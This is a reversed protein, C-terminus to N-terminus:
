SEPTALPARYRFILGQMGTVNELFVEGGLRCAVDRAISLGLGSGSVGSGLRRYFPNFVRELEEEPIGPGEDTISWIIQAEERVVRLTVGTGPPSYRLANDLGNRLILRLWRPDSTMILAEDPCDLGLDMQRLEALPLVDVIVERALAFCSFSCRDMQAAPISAHSLLQEGLLCTRNIGESLARVREEMVKPTHLELNQVQLRLATLPSRLEHAAEAIFRRQQELLTAVRSLLQNISRAFPLIETPIGNEPLETLQEPTRRDVENALRTLGELERQVRRGGLWVMLMMLALLPTLTLLASHTALDNRADTVQAVAIKGNAVLRVFVRWDGDPGHVTQFGPSLSVSLWPLSPEPLEAVLIRTELDIQPDIPFGPTRARHLFATNVLAGIQRLTDDQYDEAEAYAIWFALGSAFIGTVLWTIVLSRLLQGRLSRTVTERRVV